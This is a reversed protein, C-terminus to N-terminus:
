ANVKVTEEEKYKGGLIVAENNRFPEMTLMEKPKLRQERLCKVVTDFCHTASSGEELAKTHLLFDGEEKLFLKANKALMQCMASASSSIDFIITDISAPDILHSYSEPQSADGLITIVNFRAFHQKKIMEVRTSNIDISYIVGSEGIIDSIHSITEQGNGGSGLYLVRKGPALSFNDIGGSIWSALKCHFPNWIRYEIGSITHISDRDDNHHFTPILNKTALWVPILNPSDRLVFIGPFKHNEVTFHPIPPTTTSTITTTTTVQEENTPLSVTDMLLSPVDNLLFEKVFNLDSRETIVNPNAKVYQIFKKLYEINHPAFLDETDTTTTTTATPCSWSSSM